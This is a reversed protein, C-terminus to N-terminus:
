RPNACDAEARRRAADAAEEQCFICDRIADFPGEDPCPAFGCLTAIRGADAKSSYLGTGVIHRTGSRSVIVGDSIVVPPRGASGSVESYAGFSIVPNMTM